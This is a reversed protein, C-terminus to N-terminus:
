LSIETHSSQIEQLIESYGPQFQIAPPGADPAAYTFPAGNLLAQVRARCARVPGLGVPIVRGSFDDRRLLSLLRNEDDQSTLFCAIKVMDAGADFAHRCLKELVNLPPTERLNHSSIILRAGASHAKRRIHQLMDADAEAEVDAFAAGAELAALLLRERDAHALKGPRCAAIVREFRGIFPLADEPRLTEAALDFRIEAFRVKGAMSELQRLGGQGLSICIRRDLDNAGAKM